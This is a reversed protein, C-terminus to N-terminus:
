DPRDHIKTVVDTGADLGIFSPEKPKFWKCILNKSELTYEHVYMYIYIYIYCTYMCPIHIYPIHKCIYTYIYMHTNIDIYIYVYVHIYAYM